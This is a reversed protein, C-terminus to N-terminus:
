SSLSCSMTTSQALSSLSVWLTNYIQGLYVWDRAVLMGGKEGDVGDV